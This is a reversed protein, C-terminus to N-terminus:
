LLVAQQLEAGQFACHALLMYPGGTCSNHQCLANPYAPCRTHCRRSVQTDATWQYQIGLLSIQAPHGFIFDELGMEYVNRVARKIVQVAHVRFSLWM